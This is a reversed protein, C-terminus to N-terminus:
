AKSGVATVSQTRYNVRVTRSAPESLSVVVSARASRGRDGETVETDSISATPTARARVAPVDLAAVRTAPGSGEPEVLTAPAFSPSAPLRRPELSELTWLSRSRHFCRPM